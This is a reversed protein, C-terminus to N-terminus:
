NGHIVDGPHDVIQSILRRPVPRCLQGREPAVEGRDPVAPLGLVRHQSPQDRHHHRTPQIPFRELPQNLGVQDVLSHV